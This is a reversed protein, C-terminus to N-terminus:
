IGGYTTSFSDVIFNNIFDNILKRCLEHRGAKLAPSGITHIDGLISELEDILDYIDNRM